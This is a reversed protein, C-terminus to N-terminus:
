FKITEKKATETGKRIWYQIQKRHINKLDQLQEVPVGMEGAMYKASAQTKLAGCWTYEVQNMITKDAEQPRQTIALLTGGYKRIKRSVQGWNPPAKAVRTVDAIEDAIVTMPAAAHAIRFVVDAWQEFAEETPPVTVACRIPGFGAKKALKVFAEISRVRPLAYDEEPDWAVIRPQKFDVTQRLFASKGSGSAGVILINNNPLSPDQRKLPQRRRTM